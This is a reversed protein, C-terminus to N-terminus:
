TDLGNRRFEGVTNDYAHHDSSTGHIMVQGAEDPAMWLIGKKKQEPWWGADWAKKQLKKFAKDGVYIFSQNENAVRKPHLATDEETDSM